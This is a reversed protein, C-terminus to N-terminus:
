LPADDATVNKGSTLIPRIAALVGYVTSLLRLSRISLNSTLTKLEPGVPFRLGVPKTRPRYLVVQYRWFM